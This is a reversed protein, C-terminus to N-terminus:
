YADVKFQWDSEFLELEILIKSPYINSTKCHGTFINQFIDYGHIRTRVCGQWTCNQFKGRRHLYLFQLSTEFEVLYAHVHSDILHMPRYTYLQCTLTYCTHM